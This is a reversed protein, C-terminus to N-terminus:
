QDPTAEDTKEPKCVVPDIAERLMAALRQTEQGIMMCCWTVHWLESGETPSTWEEKNEVARTAEDDIEVIFEHLRLM